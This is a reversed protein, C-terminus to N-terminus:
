DKGVFKRFEELDWQLDMEEFMTKAKELYHTANHGNLENYKNNPDSLFKGTEFYARSLELRSQHKECTAVALQINKYARSYKKQIIYFRTRLLYAEPLNAIMKKSKYILIKSNCEIDNLLTKYEVSNKNQKQLKDLDFHVRALLYPTYYIPINSIKDQIEMAKNLAKEAEPLNDIYLNILSKM